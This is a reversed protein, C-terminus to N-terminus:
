APVPIRGEAILREAIQIGNLAAGKRLQDGCVFLSVANPNSCDARIRGVLVDDREAAIVPMPFRNAERDDVVAMGPASEYAERAAEVSPAPGEFEVNVAISHARLVPVRICTIEIALDPMDLTKRTEHIVKWEEQNYGGENVPTNHSFLNYAIPYPFVECRPERGEGIARTQETLEHMGRMGAGSASQYSSAVVRRLAGFKRLPALAMALIIGTCNGVPFLRHGERVHHWNIEPIVLPNEPEMRFASSNDIVVAGEDLAVPMWERSAGAGASFFAIQVGDFAAESVAQVPVMGSKFRLSRGHSRASALLRLASIPFHRDALLKLFEQGVAGTAGLIAARFHTM